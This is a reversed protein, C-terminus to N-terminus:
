NSATKSGCLGDFNTTINLFGFVKGSQPDYKIDVPIWVSDTVRFRLVGDGTLKKSTEGALVGALINNYSLSPKFEIYSKQIQKDKYIIWNIGASASFVNRHLSQGMATTDYIGLDAKLDLELGM